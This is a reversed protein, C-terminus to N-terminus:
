PVTKPPGNDSAGSKMAKQRQMNEKRATVSHAGASSGAQEKQRASAQPLRSNGVSNQAAAQGTGFALAGALLGALMLGGVRYSKVRM